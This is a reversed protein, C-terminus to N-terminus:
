NVIHKRSIIKIYQDQFSSGFKVNMKANVGKGNLFQNNKKYISIQNDLNPLNSVHNLNLDVGTQM